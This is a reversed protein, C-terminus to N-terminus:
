QAGEVHQRCQDFEQGRTVDDRRGFNSLKRRDRRMM